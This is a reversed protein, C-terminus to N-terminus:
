RRRLRFAHIPEDVVPELVYRAAFHVAVLNRVRADDCRRLEDLAAATLALGLHEQQLQDYRQDFWLALRQDDSMVSYVLDRAQEEVLPEAQSRLMRGRLRILPPQGTSLHLDSGGADLTAKLLSQLDLTM